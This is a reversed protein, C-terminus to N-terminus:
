IEDDFKMVEEKVVDLKKYHEIINDSLDLPIRVIKGFRGGIGAWQKEQVLKLNLKDSNSRFIVKGRITIVELEDYIPSAITIFDSSKGGLYGNEGQVIIIKQRKSYKKPAQWRAIGSIIKFNLHGKEFRKDTKLIKIKTNSGILITTKSSPLYIKIITDDSTAVEGIFPLKDQTIIKKNDFTADGKLYTVRGLYTRGFILDSYISFLFLLIFSIKM